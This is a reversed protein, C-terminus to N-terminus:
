NVMARGGVTGVAGGPNAVVSFQKRLRGLPREIGHYLLAAAAVTFVAATPAMVAFASGVSAKALALMSPHILYISYSLLGLWRVPPANLWRMVGWHPYRIATVFVAYLCLGQLSYGVTERLARELPFSLLICVVSAPLLVRKWTSESFRTPDLAPNGWLALICGFLISDIRTDTALYTRDYPMGQGFVLVCRWVFVLGCAIALLAALRQRSGARVALLFVAPFVLYFHEEVALSWYVATHPAIPAMWGGSIIQYNTLQLVQGLLWWPDTTGAYWGYAAALALVLYCTPFIRLARRLYFLRFSVTGTREFEIRMLTTILYGSLFFFLTVGFNGPVVSPLNAAILAHSLFVPLIAVCRLGDLSPIYPGREPHAM